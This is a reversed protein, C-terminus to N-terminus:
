RAATRPAPAASKALEVAFAIGLKTFPASHAADGGGNALTDGETHLNHNMGDFTSEFAATAPYGSRTWSAHDSCAYGCETTSWHVGAYQDVLRGLFATLDPDVNDSLFYISDGSGPFNTMDYQIVGIVKKGASAYQEAIDQSGRLGVEEAAYGIIQVTRRPRFGSDALVRATETLVAIGSANDDAGPARAEAGGWQNISDLHGGLVVIEDPKDAGPITLVVSPQKWDSHPFLAVSAGPIKAALEQWRDKLWNAAAVGDDATYYRNNFAAHGDITARLNPEAVKAMMPGAVAQQDLTYAASARAKPAASLAAAAKAKSAYAFFGGCRNFREHMFRSLLPLASAPVSFLAAGENSLIPSKLPFDPASAIDARAFSVWITENGSSDKAPAAAAALAKEAGVAASAAAPDLGGAARASGALLVAAVAAALRKIM